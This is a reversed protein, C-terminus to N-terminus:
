LGFYKRYRFKLRLHVLNKYHFIMSNTMDWAHYESFDDDDEPKPKALTGHIFGLKNKATLATQVVKEWLNYNKGDLVV